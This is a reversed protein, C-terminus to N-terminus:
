SAHKAFGLKCIHGDSDVMYTPCASSLYAWRHVTPRASDMIFTPVAFGVMYIPRASVVMCTPRAIEM